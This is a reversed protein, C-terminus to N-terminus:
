FFSRRVEAEETTLVEADHLFQYDVYGNAGGTYFTSPDPTKLASGQRLRAVLDPNAIFPRGFAIADARGDALAAQATKLDYLRALVLSGGFAAKLWPALAAAAKAPGLEAGLGTSEVVHLYGVGRAGLAQAVHTFLVQPDSDAIGDSRFHPSPPLGIRGAGFEEILADLVSLLFRSRNEVSGGWEDTRHNFGDRLFQDILFGNAAHLEVGDFAAERALQAAQGFATVIDPIEEAELARPTPFPQTGAATAIEGKAAIASPAVPAAGGPLASPHAKRGVHYLQEFIGGGNNHVADTVGSWGDRHRADHEASTGPRSATCLSVHSAETVILGPTPRQAYYTAVLPTPSRSADSRARAMPAVFIRNPLHYPGLDIPAFLSTVSLEAFPHHEPIFLASVV